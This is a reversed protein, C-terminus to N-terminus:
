RKSNAKRSQRSIKRKRKKKAWNVLPTDKDMNVVVQEKNGLEQLAEEQHKEPVPYIEEKLEQLNDLHKYLEGTDVNM